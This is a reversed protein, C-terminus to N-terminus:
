SLGSVVDHIITRANFWRFDLQSAGSSGGWLELARDNSLRAQARKLRHEREAVLLRASELDAIDGDEALAIDIWSDVFMRTRHPVKAGGSGVLAWFNPRSVASLAPMRVRVMDRWVELMERYFDIADQGGTQLGKSTAAEALMLNYLLAGGNILESFYRANDLRMALEDTPEEVADWPFSHTGDTADKAILHHALQSHSDAAVMRERLYDSEDASLAFSAEEFLNEPRAPLHLDWNHPRGPSQEESGAYRGQKRYFRDLRREYDGIGGPFRRIDFVGLGNWYISDPLRKLKSGASSGIVGGKEGSSMLVSILRVQHERSKQPARASPIGAEEVMQWLWPVFLFYRARTQITSIGPFLLDSFADRVVAIGLEDRSGQESFLDIVEYMKRQHEESHDLWGITSPM